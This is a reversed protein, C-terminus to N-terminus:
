AWAELEPRALEGGGKGNNRKRRKRKTFRTPPNIPDEIGFTGAGGPFGQRVGRRMRKRLGNRGPDQQHFSTTTRVDILVRANEINQQQQITQIIIQLSATVMLGLEMHLKEELGRWDRGKGAEEAEWHRRIRGNGGPNEM